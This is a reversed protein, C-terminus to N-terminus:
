LDFAEELLARPFSNEKRSYANSRSTIHSPMTKVKIAVINTMVTTLIQQASLNVNRPLRPPRTATREDGSRATRTRPVAPSMTNHEQALCKVRVTGREVWTYLHTGALTNRPYGQSPDWRTPLLFVGLRKMSRLQSLSRGPARKEFAVSLKRARLAM